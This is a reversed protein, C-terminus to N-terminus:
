PFLTKLSRYLTQGKKNLEPRKGKAKVNKSQPIGENNGRVKCKM